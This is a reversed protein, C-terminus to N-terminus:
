HLRAGPPTSTCRQPKPTGRRLLAAVRAFESRSRNQFFYAAQADWDIGPFTEALSALVQAEVGYARAATLKV